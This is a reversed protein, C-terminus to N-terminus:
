LNSTTRLLGTRGCCVENRALIKWFESSPLTFGLPLDIFKSPDPRIRGLGPGLLGKIQHEPFASLVALTPITKQYCIFIGRAKWHAQAMFTSRVSFLTYRGIRGSQMRVLVDDGQAVDGRILFHADFNDGGVFDLWYEPNPRTFDLVRSLYVQTSPPTLFRRLFRWM